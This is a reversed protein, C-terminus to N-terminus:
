LRRGAGRWKKRQGLVVLEHHKRGGCWLMSGKEKGALRANTADLTVADHISM